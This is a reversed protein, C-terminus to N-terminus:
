KHKLKPTNGGKVGNERRQAVALKREAPTMKEWYKRITVAVMATRNKNTWGGPLKSYDETLMPKIREGVEDHFTAPQHGSAVTALFDPGFGNVLSDPRQIGLLAVRDEYTM